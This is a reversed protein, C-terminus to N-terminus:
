RTLRALLLGAAVGLVDFVLDVRSARGAGGSDLLEKGVGLALVPAAAGADGAGAAHAGLV